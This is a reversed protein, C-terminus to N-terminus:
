DMSNIPNIKRLQAYNEYCYHPNIALRSELEMGILQNISKSEKPMIEKGMETQKQCSPASQNELEMGILQSISKREMPTIEKGM